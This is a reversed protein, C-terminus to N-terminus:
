AGIVEVKEKKFAEDFSLITKIELIKMTALHLCDFLNLGRKTKQTFLLRYAKDFIERDVFIEEIGSRKFVQLFKKATNTGKLRFLLNVTEALVINSTVFRTAKVELNQVIKKAKPYFEDGQNFLAILFSADM